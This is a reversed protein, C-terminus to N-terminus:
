AVRGTAGLTLQFYFQTMLKKGLFPGIEIQHDSTMMWMDRHELHVNHAGLGADIVVFGKMPIYGVARGDIKMNLHGTNDLGHTLGGSSNFITLRVMNPDM